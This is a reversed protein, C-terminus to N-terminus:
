LDGAQHGQFDLGEVWPLGPCHSLDKSSTTLERAAGTFYVGCHSEGTYGEGCNGCHTIAEHAPHVTREDNRPDSIVSTTTANLPTLQASGPKHTTAASVNM